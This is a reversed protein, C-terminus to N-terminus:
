NSSAKPPVPLTVTDELEPHTNEPLAYTSLYILKNDWGGGFAAGLVFMSAQGTDLPDNNETKRCLFFALYKNKNEFELLSERDFFCVVNRGPGIGNLKKQADERNIPISGIELLPNEDEQIGFMKSGYSGPEQAFSSAAEGVTNAFEPRSGACPPKPCASTYILSTDLGSETAGMLLMSYNMHVFGRNPSDKCLFVAVYPANKLIGDLHDRNFLCVVNDTKQILKNAKPVKIEEPKTM